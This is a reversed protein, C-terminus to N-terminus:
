YYCLFSRLTGNQKLEFNFEATSARFEATAAAAVATAATHFNAAPQFILHLVSPRTLPLFLVDM